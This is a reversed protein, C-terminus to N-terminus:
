YTTYGALGTILIVAVLITVVMIGIVIWGIIEAAQANGYGQDGPKLIRKASRAKSIAIPELIISICFIGIIAMTLASGADSVAKQFNFDQQYMPAQPNRYYNPAPQQYVEPQQAYYQPQVPIRLDRKCYECVVAEDHIENACYPCKKM